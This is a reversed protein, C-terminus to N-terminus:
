RPSRTGNRRSRSTSGGTGRPGLAGLDARDLERLVMLAALGTTPATARAGRGATARAIPEVWDLPPGRPGVRELFGGADRAAAAMPERARGRLRARAGTPSTGLSRALDPLRVLEGARPTRGGPVFDRGGRRRAAVDSMSGGSAPSSRAVAFGREAIERAPELLERSPLRGTPARSAWCAPGRGPGRRIATARRCTRRSGRASAELEGRPRRPGSGGAGVRETAAARYLLFADGGPGTMMPEVVCLVAAVALVRGRRERGRRADRIGALAAPLPHECAVTGATGYVTSRSM